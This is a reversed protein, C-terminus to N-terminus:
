LSSIGTSILIMWENAKASDFSQMKMMGGFELSCFIPSEAKEPDLREVIVKGATQESV